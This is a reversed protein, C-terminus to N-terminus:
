YNVRKMLVATHILSIIDFLAEVLLAIGTIVWVTVSANRPYLVIVVGLVLSIAGGVINLWSASYGENKSAFFMVIKNLGFVFLIIGYIIALSEILGLIGQSFLICLLGVVFCIIAGVLSGTGSNEIRKASLFKVLFVVSLVLLLGGFIVIVVRTFGEPAVLLMIGVFTEFLILLIAPLFLKWKSM